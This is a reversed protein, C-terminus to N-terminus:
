RWRTSRSEWAGRPGPPCHYRRPRPACERVAGTLVPGAPPHGTSRHGTLPTVDGACASSRPARAATVGTTAESVQMPSNGELPDWEAPATPLYAHGATTLFVGGTGGVLAVVLLHTFTLADLLAPLPVLAYLVAAVVNCVIIV